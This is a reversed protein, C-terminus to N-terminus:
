PSFVVTVDFYGDDNDRNEIKITVIETLENRESEFNEQDVWVKYFLDDRGYDYGDFYMNYIPVKEYYTERETYPVLLTKCDRSDYSYSSIGNNDQYARKNLIQDSYNYFLYVLILFIIVLVISLVVLIYTLSGTRKEM